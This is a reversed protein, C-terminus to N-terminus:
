RRGFTRKRRRYENLAASWEDAGFAPWYCDLTVLEAYASQYLLFNSLRCDGGTRILLDPDCNASYDAARLHEALTREDIDDADLEGAAVCRALERAARAVEQRGGYALAVNLVLNVPEAPAHQAVADLTRQLGRPLRELEGIFRLQVGRAALHEAEDAVVREVLGLIAATESPPRQFNEASYAYVSLTHVASSALAADVTARLAAVGAKHGDSIPKRHQTAWRANGDM